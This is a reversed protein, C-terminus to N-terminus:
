TSTVVELTGEINLHHGGALCHVAVLWNKPQSQLVILIWQLMTCTCGTLLSKCRHFFFFYIYKIFGLFMGAVTRFIQCTKWNGGPQKTSSVKTRRAISFSIIISVFQSQFCIVIIEFVYNM